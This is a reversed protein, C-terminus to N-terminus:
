RVTQHCQAACGNTGAAAVGREIEARQHVLLDEAGDDIRM